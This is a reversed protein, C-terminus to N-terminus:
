SRQMSSILSFGIILYFRLVHLMAAYKYLKLQHIELKIGYEGYCERM